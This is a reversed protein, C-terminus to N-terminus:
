YLLREMIVTNYYNGDRHIRDKITFGVIEGEVEAVLFITKEAVGDECILKEL